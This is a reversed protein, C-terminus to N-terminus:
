QIRSTRANNTVIPSATKLLRSTACNPLASSQPDLPRLNLDQRGSWSFVFSLAFAREKKAYPVVVQAAPISKTWLIQVSLNVSTSDLVEPALTLATFRLTGQHSRVESDRGALCLLSLSHERKKKCLPRSGACCINM